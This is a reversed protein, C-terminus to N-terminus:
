VTKTEIYRREGTTSNFEVDLWKGSTPDQFREGTRTWGVSSSTPAQYRGREAVIAVVVILAQIGLWVFLTTRGGVGAALLGVCLVLLVGSLVILATRLM